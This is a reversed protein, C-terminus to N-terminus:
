RIGAAEDNQFGGGKGARIRELKSSEAWGRKDKSLHLLVWGGEAREHQVITGEHIKFLVTDGPDPGARVEAEAAVVVARHDAFWGHWKLLFAFAGIGVCIALFIALYYTWEARKFLRICLVAFFCANLVAFVFLTEHLNVSDLGLLNNLPAPGTDGVADKALSRAHALNFILDDDRPILLRAREYSLIARGLNGIRFHANGLNYHIHGNEFGSEILKRYGDAAERFQEARYARNADFFREAASLNGTGAKVGGPLSLFVALVIWMFATMRKM